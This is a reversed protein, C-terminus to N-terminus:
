RVKKCAKEFRKTHILRRPPQHELPDRRETAKRTVDEYRVNINVLNSICESVM